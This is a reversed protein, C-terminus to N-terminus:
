DGAYGCGGDARPSGTIAVGRCRERLPRIFDLKAIAGDTFKGDYGSRRPQLYPATHAKFGPVM